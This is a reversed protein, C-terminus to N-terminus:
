RQNHKAAARENLAAVGRVLRPLPMDKGQSAFRTRPGPLM